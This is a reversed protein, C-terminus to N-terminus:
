PSRVIWALPTPNPATAPPVPESPKNVVLPVARVSLILISEVPRTAMPVVVAPAM